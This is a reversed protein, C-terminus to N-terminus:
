QIWKLSNLTNMQLLKLSHEYLGGFVKKCKLDTCSSIFNKVPNNNKNISNNIEFNKTIYDGMTLKELKVHTTNKFNKVVIIKLNIIPQCKM